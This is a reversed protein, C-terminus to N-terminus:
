NHKQMYFDQHEESGLRVILQYDVKHSQNSPEQTSQNLRVKIKIDETFKKRVELEFKIRYFQSEKHLSEQQHDFTLGENPFRYNLSDEQEISLSISCLFKCNNMLTFHLVNYDQLKQTEFKSIRFIPNFESLTSSYKLTFFESGKDYFILGNKCGQTPCSKALVPVLFANIAILSDPGEFVKTPLQEFINIKVDRQKYSSLFEDITEPQTSPHKQFLTKNDKFIEQVKKLVNAEDEPTLQGSGAIKNTISRTSSEIDNNDAIESKEPTQKKESDSSSDSDSEEKKETDEIEVKKEEDKLPSASNPDPKREYLPTTKEVLRHNNRQIFMKALTKSKQEETRVALKTEDWIEKLKNEPIPTAKYLMKGFDQEDKLFTRVLSKNTLSLKEQIFGIADLIDKERVIKHQKYLESCFKALKFTDFTENQHLNTWLCSRCKLYSIMIKTGDAAESPFDTDKISLNCIPCLKDNPNKAYFFKKAHLNSVEPKNPNFACTIEKNASHTSCVKQCKQCYLFEESHLIRGCEAKILM